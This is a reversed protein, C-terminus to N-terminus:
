IHREDPIDTRDNSRVEVLAGIFDPSNDTISHIYFFIEVM